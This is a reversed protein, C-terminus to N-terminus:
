ETIQKIIGYGCVEFDYDLDQAASPLSLSDTASNGHLIKKPNQVWFKKSNTPV